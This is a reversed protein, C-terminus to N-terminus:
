VALLVFIKLTDDNGRFRFGNRSSLALDVRTGAQAAM